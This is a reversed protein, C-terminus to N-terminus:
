FCTCCSCTVDPIKGLCDAEVLTLYSEVEIRHNDRTKCLENLSGEMQNDYISLEELQKLQLLGKEPIPGELLNSHLQLVSINRLQGITNSVEGVLNNNDLYLSSLDTMQYIASPITGSIKNGGLKMERLNVLNDVKESITGTIQRNGTLSLVKLNPFGYMEDFLEGSLNNSQIDLGELPYFEDGDYNGNDNDNHLYEEGCSMGYWECENRGDLFPLAKGPCDQSADNDNVEAASPDARCLTWEDGGFQYYLLALRYRQLTREGDKPCIVASDINDLWDRAKYQSTEPNTLDTSASITLLETLIDRSREIPTIGCKTQILLDRSEEVPKSPTPLSDMSMSFFLMGRLNADREETEVFLVDNFDPQVPIKSVYRTRRRTINAKNVTLGAIFLILTIKQPIMTTVFLFM